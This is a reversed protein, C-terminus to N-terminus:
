AQVGNGADVAAKRLAAREAEQSATPSATSGSPISASLKGLERAADVEADVDDTATKVAVDVKGSLVLDAFAAKVSSASGNPDLKAAAVLAAAGPHTIADLSALREREKAAGLAIISAYGEANSALFGEASLINPAETSAGTQQEAMRGGTIFNSKSSNNRALLARLTIIEDIMGVSLAEAAVLMDGAGFSKIVNDRTTNRNEAVREVFTDGLADVIKQMAAKGEETDIDRRKNPSVSSVIEITRMGSKKDAERSDRITAVTGISGVEGTDTSFIKSASSAIWYAASAANGMVYAQVNKKSNKLMSGFESLGSVAGGPSDLVFLINTIGAMEEFALFEQSMREYSALEPASMGRMMGARPLIPGDITLIGTNGVVSSFRTGPVSAGLDGVYAGKDTGHFDSFSAHSDRNAISVIASLTSPTIAWKTEAILAMVHALDSM